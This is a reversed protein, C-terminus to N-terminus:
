GGIASQAIAEFERLWRGPDAERRLWNRGAAGLSTRKTPSMSEMALIDRVIEDPKGPEHTLGTVGQIVTETLGGSRAALVPKAYDYAEYTVLGLPEWWTSPIIVARCRLLQDAKTEGGVQGLSCLYPNTRTRQIVLSNLPGEGAIHLSPTKKGLQTYLLDWADLLAHIGKEPVLRGLFLYHGADQREPAHPMADWAHRLTVIRDPHVAGAEVLRQRMFDSIAIWTRVSNLWRSRHLLTLLVAMMASKTISGMWAGERVEALYNGRLSDPLIRGRSYLTGGVAFPRYNHLVQIVPLKRRLAAHYLAPSGVPFINHFIALDPKATDIASEFRKRGDPNYFLRAAQSLQGPADPGTWETSQFQCEAVQHRQRLHQRIRGAAQEEGGVLRYRNFVDLISLRPSSM